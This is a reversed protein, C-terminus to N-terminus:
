RKVQCAVGDAKLANCLARAAALDGPLAQLRFVTGIDAEGQVIRHKVGDLATTQRQLTQWGAVARERSRYAGVQVSIGGNDATSSPAVPPTPRSQVPEEGVPLTAISPTAVDEPPDDRLVGERTQGEGVASAVSGTGEFEKGGPNEPREKIPGEPASVTSGDAVYETGGDRNAFWWAGGLGAGILALAVVVIGIIRAMDLEGAADEFEDSELWPLSDDGSLALEQEFGSDDSTMTDSNM